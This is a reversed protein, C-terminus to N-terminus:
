DQLQVIGSKTTSTVRFGEAMNDTIKGEIIASVAKWLDITSILGIDTKSALEIAAETFAIKRRSEPALDFEHNCV